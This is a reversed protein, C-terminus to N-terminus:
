RHDPPLSFGSVLWGKPWVPLPTEPNQEWLRAQARWTPEGGKQRAAWFPYAVFDASGALLMCFVLVAASKRRAAPAHHKGATLILSVGILFASPFVYREDLYYTGGIAGYMSFMALWVAMSILWWPSRDSKDSTIFFLWGIFAIDLIGWILLFPWTVPFHHVIHMPLLHGTRNLIMLSGFAKGLRGTIPELIFRVLFVPAIGSPQFGLQRRGAGLEHMVVLAQIVGCLTIVGAQLVAARTKQMVARIWYFPALSVAMPGTLAALALAANRVIQLREPRSLLIIGVCIVLYFQSNITNLWGELAGTLLLMALALMKSKRTKFLECELVLYGAFIQILLACWTLVLAAYPLPFLRAALLASFNPWVALYGMHPAVLASGIPGSWATRLYVPGEEAWVRGQVLLWPYRIALLLIYMGLLATNGDKPKKEAVQGKDTM